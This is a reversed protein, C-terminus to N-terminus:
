DVCDPRVKDDEQKLLQGGEEQENHNEDEKATKVEEIVDQESGAIGTKHAGEPCVESTAKTAKKKRRLSNTLWDLAPKFPLSVRREDSTFSIDSDISCISVPSDPPSSSDFSLLRRSSFSTLSSLSSFSSVTIIVVISSRNRSVLSIPRIDDTSRFTVGRKPGRTDFEDDEDLSSNNRNSLQSDIGMEPGGGVDRCPSFSSIQVLSSIVHRRYSIM